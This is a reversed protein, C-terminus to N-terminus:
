GAYGEKRVWLVLRALAQTLEDTNNFAISKFVQSGGAFLYGILGHSFDIFLTRPKARNNKFPMVKPLLPLLESLTPAPYIKYNKFATDNISFEDRRKLEFDTSSYRSDIKHERYVWVFHTEVDIVAALAQSTKLDTTEIM